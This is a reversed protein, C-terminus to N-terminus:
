DGEFLDPYKAVIARGAACFLRASTEAIIITGDHLDLRIAVSPRGSQMGEDLVAVRIPQAGPGLHVVRAGDKIDPFAPEGGTMHLILPTM